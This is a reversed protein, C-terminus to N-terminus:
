QQNVGFWFGSLPNIYNKECYAKFDEINSFCHICGYIHRVSHITKCPFENYKIHYMPEKKYEMRCKDCKKWFWKPKIMSSKISAKWERKTQFYKSAAENPDRKMPM